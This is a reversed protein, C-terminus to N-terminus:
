TTETTEGGANLWAEYQTLLDANDASVARVSTLRLDDTGAPVAGAGTFFNGAEQVDQSAGEPLWPAWATKARAVYTRYTLRVIALLNLSYRRGIRKKIGM